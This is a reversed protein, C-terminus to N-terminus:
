SSSPAPSPSLDASSKKFFRSRKAALSDILDTIQPAERLFAKVNETTCEHEFSWGAVLSAILTIREELQEEPSIGDKGHKAALELVRRRSEIEAKRFIESDVGRIRLKEQTPTGDPLPLM